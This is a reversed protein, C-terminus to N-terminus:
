QMWDLIGRPLPVHLLGVFLLWCGFTTAVAILGAVWLRLHLVTFIVFLGIISVPLFGLQPALYIQALVNGLVTLLAPWGGQHLEPLFAFIPPPAGRADDVFRRTQRDRLILLVGGIAFGCALISPLLAAGYPQGTFSPFLSTRWLMFGGLLVFLCGMLADTLKM